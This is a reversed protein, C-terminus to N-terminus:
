RRVTKLPVSISVFVLLTDIDDAYDKVMGSDHKQVYNEIASWGNLSHKPPLPQTHDTLFRVGRPSMFANDVSKM